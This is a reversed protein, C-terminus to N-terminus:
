SCPFSRILKMVVNVNMTKILLKLTTHYVCMVSLFTSYIITHIVQFILSGHNETNELNEFISCVSKQILLVKILLVLSFTAFFNLLPYVVGQPEFKAIQFNNAKKM